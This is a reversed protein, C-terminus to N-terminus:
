WLLQVPYHASVRDVTVLPAQEVNSQAILLRDFPDKHVPPLAEIGFVHDLSVDLIQFGNSRQEAVIQALPAHLALKKTQSKILLEWVSVVSLLVTNAPNQIAAAATASLQSPDADAWVFAHTDL